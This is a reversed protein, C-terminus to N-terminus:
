QKNNKGLTASLAILLSRNSKIINKFFFIKFLIVQVMGDEFTNLYKVNEVEILASNVIKFSETAFRVKWENGLKLKCYLSFTGIPPQQFQM